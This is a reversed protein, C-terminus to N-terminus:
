RGRSKPAKRIEYSIVGNHKRDHLIPLWAGLSVLASTSDYPLLACFRPIPLDQCFGTMVKLEGCLPEGLMMEVLLREEKEKGKRREEENNNNSVPHQKTAWAPRSSRGEL